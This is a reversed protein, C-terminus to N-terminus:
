GQVTMELLCNLILCHSGLFEQYEKSQGLWSIKWHNSDAFGPNTIPLRKILENSM